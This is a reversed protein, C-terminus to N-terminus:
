RIVWLFSSFPIRVRPVPKLGYVPKAFRSSGALKGVFEITKSPNGKEMVRKVQIVGRSEVVSLFFTKM